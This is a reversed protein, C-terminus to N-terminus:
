GFLSSASFDWVDAYNYSERGRSWRLRYGADQFIWKSINEGDFLGPKANHSIDSEIAQGTKINWSVNFVFFSKLMINSRLIKNAWAWAKQALVCSCVCANMEYLTKNRVVVPPLTQREIYTVCCAWLQSSFGKLQQVSCSLDSLWHTEMLWIWIWAQDVVASGWSM